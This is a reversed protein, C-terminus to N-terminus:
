SPSRRKANKMFDPFPQPKGDARISAASLPMISSWTVADYVDIPPPTGARLSELFARTTFYDAGGHGAGSAAKGWEKWLAHEFEKEYSKSPEWKYGKTKGEIYIRRGDFLYAGKTGQLLYHTTSPHPRASATDYRIEIIAGKATKILANCSDGSRWKARAAQSDKDFRKAAYIAHGRPQNMLATISAFRDTRNIGMWQAVPGISHTPYLNGIFDTHLRGRWTLSGDANFSLHRCDHVYGCEAYTLEGFLGQQVMNLIMMCDRYYCCNEAMMYTRGTQEVTRVLDWCEDLTCAAAVESFVNKGARMAAVSMVAHLQMPTTVLVADLDDRKLMRRYDEPGKTYTEARKDRAKEVIGAANDAKGKIIDCVAPVQTGKHALMVRLLCTGRSGTGIVGLRVDRQGIGAASVTQPLVVGAAAGATLSLFERRNVQPKM